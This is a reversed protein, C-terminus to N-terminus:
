KEAAAAKAKAKAQLAILAEGAERVSQMAEPTNASKPLGRPKKVQDHEVEHEGTDHDIVSKGNRQGKYTGLGNKGPKKPHPFFVRAGVKHGAPHDVPNIAAASRSDTHEKVFTGDGRTYSGVVSKLLTGQGKQVLLVQRSM